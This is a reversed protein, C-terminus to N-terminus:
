KGMFKQTEQKYISIFHSRIMSAVPVDKGPLFLAISRSPQEPMHCDIWKTSDPLGPQTFEDNWVMQWPSAKQEGCGLALLSIFAIFYLQHM